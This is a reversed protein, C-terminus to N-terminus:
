PKRASVAAGTRVAHALQTSSCVKKMADGLVLQAYAQDGDRLVLREMETFLDLTAGVFISASDNINAMLEGGQAQAIAAAM